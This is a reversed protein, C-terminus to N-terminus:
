DDYEAVIMWDNTAPNPLIQIARNNDTSQWYPQGDITGSTPTVRAIYTNSGKIKVFRVFRTATNAAPINLYLDTASKDAVIIQLDSPVTFTNNITPTAM